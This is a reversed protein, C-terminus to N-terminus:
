ITDKDAETEIRELIDSTCSLVIEAGARRLEREEGFGCLVGIGWAGARRASVMDVPTDGVMVCAEPPVGLREAAHLIPEPHPKLRLTSERTVVLDFFDTLEHQRLFEVADEKSRTSVVAVDGRVSVSRLLPRVGEILRFTPKIAGKTLRRSLEFVLRDLGMLDIITLVHNMPTESMMVLRRALRPARQSGLFRLRRALAEVAQDDTDMLTGDLDFLWAQIRDLPISQPSNM